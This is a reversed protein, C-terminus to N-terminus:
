SGGARRDGGEVSLYWAAGASRSDMREVPTGGGPPRRGRGCLGMRLSRGRDRRGDPVSAGRVLLLNWRASPDPRVDPFPPGAAARFPILLAHADLAALHVSRPAGAAAEVGPLNDLVAVPGPDAPSRPSDREGAIILVPVAPLRRRLRSLVRHLTLFATSPPNPGDFVDGTILVLDPRLRVAEELAARFAAGIDRERRNWGRELHFYARFGLHLDSLHVLRVRLGEPSRRLHRVRKRLLRAPLRGRRPRPRRGGRHPHRPGRRGRVEVRPLGAWALAGELVPLGAPTDTVRLERFREGPLDASFRRALEVHEARLFSVAFRGGEVLLPLSASSRDACVLVLPPRLSVSSVASATFGVARGAPDRGTVVTVGSPYRSM